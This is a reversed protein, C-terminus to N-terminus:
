LLLRMICPVISYLSRRRRFVTFGRYSICSLGRQPILYFDPQSPPGFGDQDFDLCYVNIKGHRNLVSFELVNTPQGSTVGQDVLTLERFQGSIIKMVRSVVTEQDYSTQLEQQVTKRLIETLVETGSLPPIREVFRFSNMVIFINLRLFM